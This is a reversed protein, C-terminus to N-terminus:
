DAYGVQLLFDFLNTETPIQLKKRLRYRSIEVGRVSINELQAIEKSSLNMRLYACLKLDHASVNPYKQKLMRLFGSHVSDFHIAFQEWDKDLKVEEKLVRILKKVDDASSYDSSKRIRILEDKINELLDGKQMLHMSTSALESNKYELETELKENKLKIIENESKELELQHLYRLQRQEEEHRKQQRELMKRQVKYLQYIAFCAILAYLIYAWATQYWAPLVIFQYTSIASEGSLNNKAKAQFLYNGAPLNTYDKEAKKSWASWNKDFGKLYYSYELSKQGEYFPSSYEFHLSNWRKSLNPIKDVAQKLINNVDGYYGGFLFSDSRGFAKVSSIRVETTYQNQKYEAYNIHYLGKEAGVFVNYENYPYICEFGKVMKDNLEPFYILEPKGKSFDIVGLNKDEIFWINGKQDEKLHRINKNGLLPAYFASPQFSDTRANYEYVGKETTIVVHNRIKFLHNNLYSPLGNADTYLKIKPHAPQSIDIKYVGRYPHAVWIISGNNDVAAFQSFENFDPLRSKLTFTNNKYDFFNLGNENGGIILSSPQVSYYPIFDFYGQHADISTVTNGNVKFAGDHHGLLVNDNINFLAFASGKTDPISIFEGNCYSLDNKDSLAVKYLGNSTGVYLNNKFILAAYGEGENLKEPYIHKIANNYAIFDIGNDLGIWLNKRADEYLYLINNIQLGEKRSINQIVEGKKNIIYFGALNTGVAIKDKSITTVTLVRQNSFPNQNSFHFPSLHNGSLIYFGTNITAIFASDHGFSSISSIIFKSSTKLNSIIPQWLGNNFELINDADQAILQNNGVGLFQWESTSPYVSVTYNDWQYIKEKSRFFINNGFAVTNWIDTCAFDKKSLFTKLSKFILKGKKDPTFYGFDDQGGVYIKNDTGIAVSRVITKNPLSYTKWYTGDFSLLGEQNAFYVIGNKDQVIGRNQTGANYVDKSYSIIDPIGITNQSLSKSTTIIVAIFLLLFKM